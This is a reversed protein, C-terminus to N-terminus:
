DELSRTSMRSVRYVKPEGVHREAYKTLNEEKIIAAQKLIQEPTPMYSIKEKVCGQCVGTTNHKKLQEGCDM